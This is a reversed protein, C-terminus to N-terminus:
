TMGKTFTVRSKRDAYHYNLSDVLHCILHLGLGGIPREALPSSTDAERAVSVDFEEVDYDTITVTVANGAAEVNLSIDQENEPNYKVMNTFLEEVAFHVPFRVSDDIGEADLLSETFDYIEKLSDYSRAFERHM